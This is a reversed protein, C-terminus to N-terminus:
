MTLALSQTLKQSREAHPPCPKVFLLLPRSFFATLLANPYDDRRTDHADFANMVANNGCILQGARWTTKRDRQKVRKRGLTLTTSEYLASNGPIMSISCCGVMTCAGASSSKADLLPCLRSDCFCTSAFGIVLYVCENQDFLSICQSNGDVYRKLKARRDLLAEAL